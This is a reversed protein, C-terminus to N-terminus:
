SSIYYEDFDNKNEFEEGEEEKITNILLNKLSFYQEIYFNIKNKFKNENLIIKELDESYNKSSGNYKDIKDRNDNIDILINNKVNELNVKDVNLFLKNLKNEFNDKDKINDMVKKKKNVNMGSKFQEKEWEYIMNENDDEDSFNENNVMKYIDKLIEKPGKSQGYLGDENEQILNKRQNEKVKKIAEIKDKLIKNFEEDNDPIENIIIEEEEEFKIEEPNNNNKIQFNYNKEIEKIEKENLPEFIKNIDEEAKRKQSIFNDNIFDGTNGIKSKYNDPRDFINTGYQNTKKDNIEQNKEEKSFEIIENNDNNNNIFNNRRFNHRRNFM